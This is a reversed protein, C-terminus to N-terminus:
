LFVSVNVQKSTKVGLVSVPILEPYISLHGSPQSCVLMGDVKLLGFLDKVQVDAWGSNKLRPGCGHSIGLPHVFIILFLLAATLLILNVAYLCYNLQFIKKCSKLNVSSSLCWGPHFIVSPGWKVETRHSSRRDIITHSHGLVSLCSM